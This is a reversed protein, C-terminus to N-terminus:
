GRGTECEAERTVLRQWEGTGDRDRRLLRRSVPVEASAKRTAIREPASEVANGERLARIQEALEEVSPEGEQVSRSLAM